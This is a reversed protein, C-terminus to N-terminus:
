TIPLTLTFVAGSGPESAVSISGAHNRTMIFYAVSLGLGTGEGPAKTTFFPEFIKERTSEDMGPGNDEVQIIALPGDTFARLTIGPSFGERKCAKFAHAANTLLNFVVQEIEMSACAVSPMDVQYERTIRIHKFDFRKKLDYDTSALELAREVIDILSAPAREAPSKRIFGLMNKVIATARKGSHEIADLFQPIGREALYAIVSDMCAGTGSATKLNATIDPDLRRKIIQVSQLIGSLPNNIEHAMGGAMSGATIMKETHIMMQEIRVRETVDDLRLVAGEVEGSGFPYIMIEMLRTGAGEHFSIIEQSSSVGSALARRVHPLKGSLWPFVSGLPVGLAEASTKGSLERACMNWHTVACNTDLAIIASPMSELIHDLVTRTKRLSEEVRETFLRLNERSELIEQEALKQETIDQNAGVVLPPSHGPLVCFRVRIHRLEGDRRIIRHVVSQVASPDQNSSARRTAEMFLPIDDPHFFERIYTEYPMLYGGEKEASTGYLAYFQDNLTLVGESPCAEWRALRAMDMALSLQATRLELDRTVEQSETVDRLTTVAGLLNGDADHFPAANTIVQRLPRGEALIAMPVGRAHRGSLAQALAIRDMAMPTVGDPEFLGYQSAWDGPRTPAADKGHWERAARNFCIINGEADCVVVGDELTDLLTRTFDMDGYPFSRSEPHNDKGSKLPFPRERLIAELEAIRRRAQELEALLEPRAPTSNSRSKL